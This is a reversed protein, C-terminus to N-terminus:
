TGTEAVEVREGEVGVEVPGAVIVSLLLAQFLDHSDCVFLISVPM